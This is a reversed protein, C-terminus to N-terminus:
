KNRRWVFENQIIFQDWGEYSTEKLRREYFEIEDLIDQYKNQRRKISKPNSMKSIDKNKEAAYKLESIRKRIEDKSVYDHIFNFTIVPHQEKIGKKLRYWAIDLKEQNERSPTHFGIRDPHEKLQGVGFLEVVEIHNNRKYDACLIFDIEDECFTNEDAEVRINTLEDINILAQKGNEKRVEVKTM